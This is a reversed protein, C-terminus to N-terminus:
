RSSSIGCTCLISPICTIGIANYNGVFNKHNTKLKVHGQVHTSHITNDKIKKKLINM